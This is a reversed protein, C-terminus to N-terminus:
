SDDPQTTFDDGCSETVSAHPSQRPDLQQIQITDRLTMIDGSSVEGIHWKLIFYFFEHCIKIM